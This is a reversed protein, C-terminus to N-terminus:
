QMVDMPKWMTLGDIHEFDGDYTAINVIPVRHRNMNGVHISDTTLLGYQQRETYTEVILKPTVNLVKLGINVTNEFQQQYETLQTAMNRDDTLLKKLKYASKKEIFGKKISEALMLNHLLDALVNTNVYAIVDGRYIRNIFATCTVSQGRYHLYFINTDVFVAAGSPISALDPM